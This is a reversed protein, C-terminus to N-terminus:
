ANVLFLHNIWPWALFAQDSEAVMRWLLGTGSAECSCQVDAGLFQFGADSAPTCCVLIGQVLHRLYISYAVSQLQGPWPLRLALDSLLSIEQRDRQYAWLGQDRLPGTDTRSM